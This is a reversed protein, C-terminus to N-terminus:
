KTAPDIVASLEATPPLQSVVTLSDNETIKQVPNTNVCIDQFQIAAMPKQHYVQWFFSYDASAGITDPLRRSATANDKMEWLKANYEIQHGVNSSTEVKQGNADNTLKSLITHDTRVRKQVMKLNKIRSRREKTFKVRTCTRECPTISQVNQDKHNYLKVQELKM